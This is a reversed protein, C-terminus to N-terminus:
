SFFLKCDELSADRRAASANTSKTGITRRDDLVSIRGTNVSELFLFIKHTSKDEYM